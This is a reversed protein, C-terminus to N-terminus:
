NYFEIEQFRLTSSILSIQLKCAIFNDVKNCDKGKYVLSKIYSCLNMAKNMVKSWKLMLISFARRFELM